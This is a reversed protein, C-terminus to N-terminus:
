SIPQQETKSTMAHVTYARDTSGQPILATVGDELIVHAYDTDGEAKSPLKDVIGVRPARLLEDNTISKEVVVVRAGLALEGLGVSQRYSGYREPANQAAPWEPRLSESARQARYKDYVEQARPSYTM